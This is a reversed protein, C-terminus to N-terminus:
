IDRLMCDPQNNNSREKWYLELRIRTSRQLVMKRDDLRFAEFCTRRYAAQGFNLSVMRWRLLDLTLVNNLKGVIFVYILKIKGSVIVCEPHCLHM